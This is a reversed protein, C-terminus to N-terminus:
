LLRIRYRYLDLDRETNRCGVAQKPFTNIVDWQLIGEYVFRVASCVPLIREQPASRTNNRTGLTSKWEDGSVRRYYGAVGL